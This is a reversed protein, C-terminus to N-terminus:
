DMKKKKKDKLLWPPVAETKNDIWLYLIICDFYCKICLVVVYMYMINVAACSTLPQLVNKKKLPFLVWCGNLCFQSQSTKIDNSTPCCKALIKLWKVGCMYLDHCPDAPTLNEFEDSKKAAFPTLNSRINCPNCFYM